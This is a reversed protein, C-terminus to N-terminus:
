MSMDTSTTTVEPIFTTNPENDIVLVFLIKQILIHFYITLWPQFYIRTEVDFQVSYYKNYKCDVTFLVYKGGNEEGVSKYTHGTRCEAQKHYTVDVSIYLDGDNKYRQCFHFIFNVNYSLVTLSIICDFM